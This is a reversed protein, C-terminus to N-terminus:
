PNATLVAVFSTICSLKISNVLSTHLHGGSGFVPSAPPQPSTRWVWKTEYDDQQQALSRQYSQHSEEAQTAWRRASSGADASAQTPPVCGHPHHGTVLAHESARQAVSMAFCVASACWSVTSMRVSRVDDWKEKTSASVQQSASPQHVGPPNSKQNKYSCQTCVSFEM